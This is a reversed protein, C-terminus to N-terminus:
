VLVHLCLHHPVGLNGLGKYAMSLCDAPATPSPQVLRAAREAGKMVSRAFVGPCVGDAASGGVGDAVGPCVVHCSSFSPCPHVAIVFINLCADCSSRGRFGGGAGAKVM